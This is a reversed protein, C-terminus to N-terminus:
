AKSARQELALRQLFNLLPRVEPPASVDDFAWSGSVAEDQIWLRYRYTDRARSEATAQQGGAELIGARQILELLQARVDEPLQDTDLQHSLPTAAFLGGYGGQFDFRVRM